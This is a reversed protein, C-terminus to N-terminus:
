QGREDFPRATPAFVPLFLFGASAIYILKLWDDIM